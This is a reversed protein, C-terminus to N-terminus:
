FRPFKLKYDNIDYDLIAQHAPAMGPQGTRLIIRVLENHNSERIRKVTLLGAHDSEMVVDLLILATDEHEQLLDIAEQGSYAHIFDLRRQQFTVNRLSLLTVDHVSQEDDVIMVKWPSESLPPSAAPTDTESVTDEPFLLEDTSM